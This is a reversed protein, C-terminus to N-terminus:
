DFGATGKRGGTTSPERASTNRHDMLILVGTSRTRNTRLPRRCTKAKSRQKLHRFLQPVKNKRPHPVKGRIL